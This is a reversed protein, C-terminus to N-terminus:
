LSSKRLGDELDNLFGVSYLNTKKFDAVIDSVPDKMANEFFSEALKEYAKARSVLKRYESKSITITEM